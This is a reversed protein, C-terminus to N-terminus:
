MRARPSLLAEKSAADAGVSSAKLGERGVDDLVEEELAPLGVLMVRVAVLVAHEDSGEKPDRPPIGTRNGNRLM